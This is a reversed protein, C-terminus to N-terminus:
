SFAASNLYKSSFVEISIASNATKHAPIAHYLWYLLSLLRASLIGRANESIPCISLSASLSPLVIHGIAAYLM